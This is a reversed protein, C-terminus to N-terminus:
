WSSQLLPPPRAADPGPVAHRWSTGICEMPSLPGGVARRVRRQPGAPTGHRSMSMKRRMILGLTSVSLPFCGFPCMDFVPLKGHWPSMGAFSLSTLSDRRTTNSGYPPALSFVRRISGSGRATPRCLADGANGRQEAFQHQAPTAYFDADECLTSGANGMAFASAIHERHACRM